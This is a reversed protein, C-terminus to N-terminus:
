YMTFISISVLINVKQVAQWEPHRLCIHSTTLIYNFGAGIIGSVSPSIVEENLGLQWPSKNTFTEVSSINVAKSIPFHVTEAMIEPSDHLTGCINITIEFRKWVFQFVLTFNWWFRMFGKSNLLTVFLHRWDAHIILMTIPPTLKLRFKWAVM